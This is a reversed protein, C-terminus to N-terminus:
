SLELRPPLSRLFFYIGGGLMLILRLIPGKPDSAWGGGHPFIVIDMDM